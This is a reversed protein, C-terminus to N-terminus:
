RCSVCEVSTWAHTFGNRFAFLSFAMWAFMSYVYRKHRFVQAPHLDFTSNANRLVKPPEERVVVEEESNSRPAHREYLKRLFFREIGMFLVRLSAQVLYTIWVQTLPLDNRFQLLSVDGLPNSSVNFAGAYHTKNCTVFCTIPISSHGAEAIDRFLMEIMVVFPLSISALCESLCDVAGKSLFRLVEKESLYPNEAKSSKLIYTRFAYITWNSFGCNRAAGGVEQVMVLLFFQTPNRNLLTDLYISCQLLDIQFYVPFMMFLYDSDDESAFKSIYEIAFSGFSAIVQLYIAQAVPEPLQSSIGMTIGVWTICWIWFYLYAGSKRIKIKAGVHYLYIGVFPLMVVGYAITLSTFSWHLAPDLIVVLYGLTFCCPFVRNALWMEKKQPLRVMYVYMIALMSLFFFIWLPLDYLSKRIAVRSFGSKTKLAGFEVARVTVYTASWLLWYIIWFGIAQTRTLAKPFLRGSTAFSGYSGAGCAFIMYYFICGALSMRFMSAITSFVAIFIAGVYMLAFSPQDNNESDEEDKSFIAWPRSLTEVLTSKRQGLKKAKLRM